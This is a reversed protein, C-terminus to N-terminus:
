NMKSFMTKLVVRIARIADSAQAASYNGTNPLDKLFDIAANLNIETQTPPSPEHDTIDLPPNQTSNWEVFEPHDIGMCAGDDRQVGAVKGNPFRMVTFTM